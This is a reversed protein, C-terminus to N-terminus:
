GKEVEKLITHQRQLQMGISIIDGPLIETTSIAKWKKARYVNVEYPKPSM